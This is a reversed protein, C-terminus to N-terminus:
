VGFRPPNVFDLVVCPEGNNAMNTEFKMELPLGGHNVDWGYDGGPKTRDMEGGLEDYFDNLYVFDQRMLVMSLENAIRRLENVDSRFYRGSWPDYCLTEGTRTRYIHKEGLANKNLVDQNLSSRIEGEKEEGIMEMVKDRYENASTQALSYAAALATNRKFNLYSAGAVCAIGSITTIGTPIYCKWTLMLIEKKTLEPQDEDKRTQNEKEVILYAKITAKGSLVVATTFTAIGIGTLIEPKKTGIFTLVGNAIAKPKLKLKM